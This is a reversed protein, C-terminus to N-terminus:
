SFLLVLAALLLAFLCLGVGIVASLVFRGKMQKLVTESSETSILYLGAGKRVTRKPGEQQVDGMVFVESGELITYTRVRKREDMLEDLKMQVGPERGLADLVDKGFPKADFETGYPEAGSAFPVHSRSGIVPVKGINARFQGLVGKAPPPKKAEQYCESKAIEVKAGSPDVYFSSGFAELLFPKRKEWTGATCWQNRKRDLYEMTLSSYVCRAGDVYGELQTESRAKGSLAAPGAQRPGTELASKVSQLSQHHKYGRYLVYAGVLFFFVPIM